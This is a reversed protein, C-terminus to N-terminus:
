GRRIGRENQVYESTTIVPQQLRRGGIELEGVVIAQGIRLNSLQIRWKDIHWADIEKAAKRVDALSQRFYLKTAVQHIVALEKKSFGTLTQTALILSVNYKRSETLMQFLVSGSHFDLNQFEDFVLTLTKEGCGKVRMQRWLVGLLVEMIQKQTKPTIGQLSVINIKGNIIKTANKRFIGGELLVCMHNYAGLAADDEQRLLGDAIAEMDCSFEWRHELAYKIAERVSARQRAGRLERPCITEVVYEVFNSSTERGQEVFTTDLLNDDLGDVQASIHNGIEDSIDPHTGNIDFAIVTEGTEVIHNEIDAIRVSKGSGSLGTILIHGNPSNQGIRVSKGGVVKGVYQAAM